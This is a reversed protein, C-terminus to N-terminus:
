LTGGGTKKGQRAASRSYFYMLGLMLLTLVVSAAAGAPWNRAVLFQNKIFNGVLLNKGGGLLDPIFFMGLAPLFVMMCGSIIGPVTLPLTINVFTRAKNAGLDGAAEILRDDLKEIASYLPLIMFPLLTYAMGIFIASETYMLSFPRDALGIWQMFQSLIGNAKLIFVLAYTRILSNTWFPIMVLMLLLSRHGSKMRALTYAFPYGVVLCIITAGAALYVSKGLVSLFLPSLITRYSELSFSFSVLSSESRALLSAGLVLLNPVLAFVALWLAAGGISIRRFLRRNNM